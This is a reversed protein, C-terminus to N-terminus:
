FRRCEFDDAKSRGQFSVVVNYSTNSKQGEGVQRSRQRRGWHGAWPQGAARGCQFSVSPAGELRPCYQLRKLPVTDLSKSKQNKEHILTGGTDVIGAVGTLSGGKFPYNRLWSPNPAFLM